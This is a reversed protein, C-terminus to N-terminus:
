IAKKTCIRWLSGLIAQSRQHPQLGCASVLLETLCRRRSPIQRVGYIKLVTFVPGNQQTQCVTCKILYRTEFVNVLCVNHKILYTIFSLTISIHKKGVSKPTSWLPAVGMQLAPPRVTPHPMALVSCYPSRRPKRRGMLGLGWFEHACICFEHFLRKERM